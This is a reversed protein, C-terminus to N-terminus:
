SFNRLVSSSPCCVGPYPSLNASINWAKPFTLTSNVVIPFTSGDEHNVRQEVVCSGMNLM